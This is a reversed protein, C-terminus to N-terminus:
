RKTENLQDKNITDRKAVIFYEIQSLRFLQVDCWDNLKSDNARGIRLICKM